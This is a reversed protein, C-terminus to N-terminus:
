APHAVRLSPDVVVHYGNARADECWGVLCYGNKIRCKRAVEARMVLCSGVSSVETFGDSLSSHYPAFPSFREGDLGRFGWVDYFNAGAFVLPAFVDNPRTATHEILKAVTVSDWVLDSEVYVLVDDTERVANFIANGIKSLATLRDVHETSGFVPGGHDCPVIQIDIGQVSELMARTSDSSDGEAAIVRVTHAKGLQLKLRAVQNLYRILYPTANRFASGIVVNV